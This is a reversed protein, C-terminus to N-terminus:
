AEQNHSKIAPKTKRQKKDYREKESFICGCYGQLYLGRERALRLSKRFVPRLDKYIFRLGYKDAMEEGIERIHEHRQYPSILLTTSFCDIGKEEAFRATADLRLRYCHTCREKERNVVMRLFDELLYDEEIFLPIKEEVLFQRLTEKRRAFERYPHINPNFFFGQPEFGNEKFVQLSAISCPACCIHLLIPKGM